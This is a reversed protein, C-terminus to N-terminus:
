PINVAGWNVDASNETKAGLGTVSTDSATYFLPTAFIPGSTDKALLDLVQHDDKARAATNTTSAGETLLQGVTPDCLGSFPQGCGYSAEVGLSLAPDTTGIAQLMAEWNGGEFDEILGELNVVTLNTKIGAQAWETKLEEDVLRSKFPGRELQVTLGGLQRVLAQLQPM